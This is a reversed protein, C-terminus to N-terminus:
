HPAGAHDAVFHAPVGELNRGTCALKQRYVKFFHPYFHRPTQYPKQAVCVYQQGAERKCPTPDIRYIVFRVAVFIIHTCHSFAVKLLAFRVYRQKMWKVM